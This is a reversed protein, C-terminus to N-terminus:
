CAASAEDSRLTVSDDESVVLLQIIKEEAAECEAREREREREREWPREGEYRIPERELAGRTREGNMADRKEQQTQLDQESQNRERERERLLLM